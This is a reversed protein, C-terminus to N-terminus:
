ALVKKYAARAFKEFEMGLEGALKDDPPLLQTGFIGVLGLERDAFWFLNPMGGWVMTGKARGSQDDDDLALAGGLGWSRQVTPPLGIGLTYKTDPSQAAAMYAERAQAGLQPKFMEDLTQAQLLKGPLLLSQLIKSCDAVSSALGGGGHEDPLHHIFFPSSNPKIGNPGEREALDVLRAKIDPYADLHPSFTTSQCGLPELIHKRFYDELSLGSARSVMVGAFDISGSYGWATGPHYALPTFYTNFVSMDRPRNQDSIWKDVAPQSGWRPYTFGSSHTLLQRLTVPTAPNVLIPKGLQTFGAIVKLDKFESLVDAVPSDLNLKGQEVLQMAAITTVLKTCSAIYMTSDHTVAQGSPSSGYNQQYTFSGSANTAIVSIGPMQSSDVAAQMRTVFPDM